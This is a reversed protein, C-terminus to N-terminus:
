CLGRNQNCFTSDIQTAEKKFEVKNLNIYWIYVMYIGYIFRQKYVM